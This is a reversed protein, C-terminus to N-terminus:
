GDAWHQADDAACLDREYQAHGEQWTTEQGCAACRKTEKDTPQDLWERLPPLMVDHLKAIEGRAKRLEARLRENEAHVEAMTALSPIAAGIGTTM